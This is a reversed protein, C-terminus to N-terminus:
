ENKGEKELKKSLSFIETPYNGTFCAECIDDSIGKKLGNLTIFALSDANIYKKLEELKLKRSILENHDSTDVGYFCPNIIAPSAIRMHVEKAGAEKLLSVIKKSTTGRVISDDVLVIRKNKVISEMASLKMKVGKERQKQTPKIFTRGVYRNKILGMEYPLKSYDSYGMAASLSSDPVGIVIDADVPSEEALIRGCNRRSAHVNIENISSDPRSFYIYEMACMKNQIENTYKQSNIGEKNITLVEGPKLERIYKAGVIEFASSESSLAYGEGLKAISLPRLGNKDRIAYLADKTMILFSFAGELKPLANIIREEFTGKERQILHGIIESDSTSQFISGKSELEEKLEKCNVINGNHAIVFDGTHSRIFIPQVNDIGGGGTTGYRVHGISNNGKLEAIKSSTFVEHILGEGRYRIINEGDFSAIGAGEQGRHQLSHLGYYNMQSALEVNFIGFVGCEENVKGTLFYEKELIM